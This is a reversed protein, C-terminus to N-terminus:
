ISRRLIKIAERRLLIPIFTQIRADQYQPLLMALLQTVDAPKVTEQLDDCIGETLKNLDVGLQNALTQVTQPEAINPMM